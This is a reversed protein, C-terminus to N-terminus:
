LRLAALHGSFRILFYAAPDAYGLPGLQSVPAAAVWLDVPLYQGDKFLKSKPVSRVWLSPRVVQAQEAGGGCSADCGSYGLIGAWDM